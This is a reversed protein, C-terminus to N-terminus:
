EVINWQNSVTEFVRRKGMQEDMELLVLTMYVIVLFYYDIIEIRKKM